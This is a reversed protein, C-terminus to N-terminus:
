LIIMHIKVKVYFSDLQLVHFKIFACLPITARSLIILVPLQLTVPDM